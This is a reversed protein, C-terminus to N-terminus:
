PSVSTVSSRTLRGLYWNTVDNTYTNTTTKSFGDPTSVVIQTANGFADYQNATTVSPLATGDLDSGSSVNQSLSVKYPASSPSITTTGSLNSFQFTNASQGLTTTNFSRVTSTVLGTYPFDQRYTTTESIGTQLDKATMQRFGLFGRGSLDAKAGAYSYSSSYTGGVGNPTSVQSVVYLPSQMDQLPYAAANSGSDKSYASANTL